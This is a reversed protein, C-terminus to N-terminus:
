KADDQDTTKKKRGRRVSTKKRELEQLRRKLEAIKEEESQEQKKIKDEERKKKREEAAKKAAEEKEKKMEDKQRKTEEIVEVISKLKAPGLNKALNKLLMFEDVATDAIKQDAKEFVSKIEIGVLFISIVTSIIPIGLFIHNFDFVKHFVEFLKGLYILLDLLFGLFLSGEYTIFKSISKRLLRSTTAEGRLKAKNLGSVLDIGMASLVVLAEIGWILLKSHIVPIDLTPDIM